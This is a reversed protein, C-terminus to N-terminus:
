LCVMATGQPSLQAVLHETVDLSEPLESGRRDCPFSLILYPFAQCDM